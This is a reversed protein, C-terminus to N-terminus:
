FMPIQVKNTVNDIIDILEILGLDGQHNCILKQKSWFYKQSLIDKILGKPIM